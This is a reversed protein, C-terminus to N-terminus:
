KFLGTIKDWFIGTLAALILILISIIITTTLWTKSEEQQNLQQFQPTLQKLQDPRTQPTIPMPQAHRTLAQAEQAAAEVESPKYGANVFSQKIKQLAEGKELANKIGGTLENM